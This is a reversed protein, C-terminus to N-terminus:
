ASPRGTRCAPCPARSAFARAGAMPPSSFRRAPQVNLAAQAARSLFLADPDFVDNNTTDPGRPALGILSPTVRAARIVDLGLLTIRGREGRADLSVVPSADRVGEARAAAGYLAEDFGLPASARISLDAAGGVARVAGGFASLASGNVLHVAFGLAVGVAIALATALFRAPPRAM